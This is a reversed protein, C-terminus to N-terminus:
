CWRHCNKSCIVVVHSFSRETEYASGQWPFLTVLGGQVMARMELHRQKLYIPFSAKNYTKLLCSLEDERHAKFPLAPCFNFFDFYAAPIACGSYVTKELVFSSRLHQFGNKDTKQKNEPNSERERSNGISTPCTSSLLFSKSPFFGVEVVLLCFCHSYSFLCQCVVWWVGNMDSKSAWWMFYERRCAASQNALFISQWWWKWSLSPLPPSRSPYFSEAKLIERGDSVIYNIQQVM